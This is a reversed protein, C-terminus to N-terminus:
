LKAAAQGILGYCAGGRGFMGRLDATIAEPIEHAAFHGGKDQISEYVVPGLTRAWTM